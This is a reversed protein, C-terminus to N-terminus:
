GQLRQDVDVLRQREVHGVALRVGVAAVAQALLRQVALRHRVVALGYLERRAIRLGEVVAARECELHVPTNRDWAGHGM